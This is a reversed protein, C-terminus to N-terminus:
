ALRAAATGIHVILSEVDVQGTTSVEIVPWGAVARSRLDLAPAITRALTTKGSAPPGSVVVFTGPPLRDAV